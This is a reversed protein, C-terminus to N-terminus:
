GKKFKAGLFQTNPIYDDQYPRGGRYFQVWKKVVWVSLSFKRSTTSYCLTNSYDSVVKEIFDASFRTSDPLIEFDTGEVPEYQAFMEYPQRMRKAPFQESTETKVRPAHKQFVELFRESVKLNQSTGRIGEDEIKQLLKQRILQMFPHVEFDAHIVHDKIEDYSVGTLAQMISDGLLLYSM